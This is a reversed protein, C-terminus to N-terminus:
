PANEIRALASQVEDKTYQDVNSELYQLVARISSWQEETYPETPSWRHDAIVAYIVSEAYDSQPDEIARSLWAPLFYKKANDSLLPLDWRHTSLVEDPIHDPTHGVLHDRLDDCEGCRHPAIDGTAPAKTGAFAATVQRLLLETDKM